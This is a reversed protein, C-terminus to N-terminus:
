QNLAYHAQRVMRGLTATSSRFTSTGRRLQVNFSQSLIVLGRTFIIMRGSNILCPPADGQRKMATSSHRNFRDSQTQRPNLLPPRRGESLAFRTPLRVSHLLAACNLRVVEQLVSSYYLPAHGIGTLTRRSASVSDNISRSASVVVSLTRLSVRHWRPGQWAPLSFCPFSVAKHDPPESSRSHPCRRRSDIASYRRFIQSARAPSPEHGRNENVRPWQHGQQVSTIGM